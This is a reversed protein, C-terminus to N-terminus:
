RPELIKKFKSIDDEKVCGVIQKSSKKGLKRRVVNNKGTVKGVRWNSL